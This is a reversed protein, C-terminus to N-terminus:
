FWHSAKQINYVKKKITKQQQQQWQQDQEPVNVVDGIKVPKKKRRLRAHRPKWATM